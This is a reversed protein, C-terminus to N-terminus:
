PFAEREGSVQRLIELQGVHYTEHWHLGAIREGITQNREEDFIKALKGPAASELGEAISNQSEELAQLIRDLSIATESTVPASGTEYLSSESEDLAPAQSLLGLVHNRSVLIHGLVWNFTNSRFPSQAVSDEHTLGAAFKGILWYTTQFSEVLRTEESM